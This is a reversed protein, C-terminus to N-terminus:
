RKPNKGKKNSRNKSESLRASIMNTYFRTVEATPVYLVSKDSELGPVLQNVASLSYRSIRAEQLEGTFDGGKLYLLGSTARPVDVNTEASRSDDDDGSCRDPNLFHSSFSLFKPVASVARGMIFDFKQDYEEARCTVVNVNDLGLTEAIEAVIKMKKTNSDLLTFSAAPCAIAMPLGPFGGGTGVDVIRQGSEFSKVLSVSLSPVIHNPVIADIDKRSILNVKENWAEIQSSLQDLQDLQDVTLNPFSSQYPEFRSVFNGFLRVPRVTIESKCVFSRCRTMLTCISVWLLLRSANFLM